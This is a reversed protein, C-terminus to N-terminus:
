TKIFYKLGNFTWEIVYDEPRGRISNKLEELKERVAEVKDQAMLNAIEFSKFPPYLPDGPNPKPLIESLLSGAKNFWGTIFHKDIHNSVSTIALNNKTLAWDQPLIERTYVGSAYVLGKGWLPLKIKISGFGSIGAGFAAGALSLLVRFLM